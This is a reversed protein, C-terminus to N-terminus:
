FDLGVDVALGNEECYERIVELLQEGYKRRKAAGIGPVALLGDETSPRIQALGRLTRDNFIVYAPVGRASALERRLERLKEYLDSDVGAWAETEVKTRKPAKKAPAILQVARKGKLVEMSVRNLVLVPFEDDTRAVVDQDLLQWYWNVIQRQPTDKLLGFTSLHEHRWRRTRETDAGALIEALAAMGFRQGSRYVNSLLKQAVVTGDEVGEMEGLCVDCAGCDEKPFEQGFYESLNRHRCRLGRCYREMEALLRRSAQQSDPDLEGNFEAAARDMLRSWRLADQGSYLLVCEAELGDRGARGSEQQYHEISKPMGAHVVCRVDSRDVGMGFAVTAVIVDLKESSFRDQTERRREPEMGAHYAAASFKRRTLRDALQETEKRTICYVIAAQGRHRELVEAVQRGTDVRPVVRYTLNPRDFTGILVQPDRLRLQAAIDERVRPTATATFGHVSLEPIRERLEALMRYEPRFDHGWHSICHAEDVAVARIPLRALMEITRPMMLREPALYILRLQGAMLEQEVTRSEESTLNSHLAGAPYGAARLGDVQDKMLAILPSVVVDTGGALLPPVQYCLSKGGGTPLVVLSDRGELRAHIADEQLPLLEPHGWTKRIAEHIAESSAARPDVPEKTM